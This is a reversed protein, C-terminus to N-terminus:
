YPAYNCSQLHRRMMDGRTSVGCGRPCQVKFKEEHVVVHKWMSSKHIVSDCEDGWMCQVRDKESAYHARVHKGWHNVNNHDVYLQETCDGWRCQVM